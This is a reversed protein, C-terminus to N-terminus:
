IRNDTMGPLDAFLFGSGKVRPPSRAKSEAQRKAATGPRLREFPPNALKAVAAEEDHGSRKCRTAVLCLQTLSGGPVLIELAM